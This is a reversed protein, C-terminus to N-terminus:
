KLHVGRSSTRHTVGKFSTASGSDETSADSNWYSRVSDVIPMKDDLGVSRDRANPNNLGISKVDKDCMLVSSEVKEDFVEKAGNRSLSSVIGEKFDEGVKDYEEGMDSDGDGDDEDILENDWYDM